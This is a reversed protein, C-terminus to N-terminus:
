HYNIEDCDITPEQRQNGRSEDSKISRLAHILFPKM